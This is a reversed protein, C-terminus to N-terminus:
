QMEKIMQLYPLMEYGNRRYLAIAKENEPEVELRYRAAPNSKELFKLFESGLGCGRFDELIFLEELWVAMGGAEQSFTKSLLAYGATKGDQEIIYCDAYVDSRMLENFTCEHYKEPITHSVASSRYFMKAMDLFLSKDRQEIKRIM